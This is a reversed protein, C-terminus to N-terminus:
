KVRSYRIPSIVLTASSLNREQKILETRGHAAQRSWRQGAYSKKGYM